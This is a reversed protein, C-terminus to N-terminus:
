GAQGNPWDRQRLLIMKWSHPTKSKWKQAHSALLMLTTTDPQQEPGRRLEFITSQQGARVFKLSAVQSPVPTLNPKIKMKRNEQGFCRFINLYKHPLCCDMLHMSGNEGVPKHNKGNARKTEFGTSSRDTTMSWYSFDNFRIQEQHCAFADM